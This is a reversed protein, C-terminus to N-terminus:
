ELYTKPLHQAIRARVVQYCECSAAILGAHHLIKVYGRGSKAGTHHLLLLPISGFQGVKGQNARFEEIVQRNRDNRESM